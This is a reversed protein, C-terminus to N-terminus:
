VNRYRKVFDSEDGTKLEEFVHPNHVYQGIYFKSPKTNSIEQKLGKVPFDEGKYDGGLHFFSYYNEQGWEAIKLLLFKMSNLKEYGLLDGDLHYYIIDGKGMVYCASVLKNEYYAGFLHLDPGLSSILMEFYDNTFFHYSDAEERQRISSYYLVLFEFMHRVTGLKKIVISNEEKEMENSKGDGAPELSHLLKVMYTDYVPTLNIHNQFYLANGLLPHFRIFEAVIKETECFVSFTKMYNNILNTPDKKIKVLPGGYGFPTTIDFFLNDESYLSRKIFPYAVEGEGFEDIYYFLLAEGPDLKAASLFYQWSYYIDSVKFLDLIKQWRTEDSISILEYM